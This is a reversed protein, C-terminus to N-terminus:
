GYQSSFSQNLKKKKKTQREDGALAPTTLIPNTVSFRSMLAKEKDLSPVSNIAFVCLVVARIYCVQYSCEKCFVKFGTSSFVPDKFCDTCEEMALNGCLICQQPGSVCVCACVTQMWQTSHHQMHTWTQKANGESLLDTIDLELSPIIKDFMKFKKGFRPMQLILCSPVQLFVLVFILIFHNWSM